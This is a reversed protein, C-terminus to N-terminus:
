GNESIKFYTRGYYAIFAYCIASIFLSHQAGFAPSILFSYVAPILAGGAIAMILMSAGKGAFDQL